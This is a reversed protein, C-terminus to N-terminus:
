REYFWTGVGESDFHRVLDLVFSAVGNLDTISDKRLDSSAAAFALYDEEREHRPTEVVSFYSLNLLYNRSLFLGFFLARFVRGFYTATRWSVSFRYFPFL